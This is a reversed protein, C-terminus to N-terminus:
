FLVFFVAFINARKEYRKGKEFAAFTANATTAVDVSPSEVSALRASTSEIM